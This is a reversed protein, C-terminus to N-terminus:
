TTTWSVGIKSCAAWCSRCPAVDLDCIRTLEGGCVTLVEALLLDTNGGCRPSGSVAIVSAM